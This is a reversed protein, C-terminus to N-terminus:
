LLGSALLALLVVFALVGWVFLAGDRGLSPTHAQRRAARRSRTM